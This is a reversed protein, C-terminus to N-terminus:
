FWWRPRNSLIMGTPWIIKNWEKKVGAFFSEKKAPTKKENDAM